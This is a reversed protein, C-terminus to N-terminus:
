FSCFHVKECVHESRASHPRSRKTDIGPLDRCLKTVMQGASRGTPTAGNGDWSFNVSSDGPPPAVKPRLKLPKLSSCYRHFHDCNIPVVLVFRILMFEGSFLTYQEQLSRFSCFHVKESFNDSRALHPRSRKTNIEPTDRCLKTSFSGVSRGCDSDGTDGNFLTGHIPSIQLCKPCYNPPSFTM